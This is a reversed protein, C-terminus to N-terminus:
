RPFKRFEDVSAKVPNVRTQVLKLRNKNRTAVGWHQVQPVIWVEASNKAPKMEFTTQGSSETTASYSKLRGLSRTAPGIFAVSHRCVRGDFIVNGTQNSAHKGFVLQWKMGVVFQPISAGQELKLRETRMYYSVPMEQGAFILPRSMLQGGFQTAAVLAEFRARHGPQRLDLDVIEKAGNLSAYLAPHERFGDPRVDPDIKVVRAGLMALLSTALPGAWLSTLDVVVPLRSWGTGAARAVVAPQAVRAVAPVQM